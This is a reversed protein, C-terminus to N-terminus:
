ATTAQVASVCKELQKALRAASSLHVSPGTELLFDVELTYPGTEDPTILRIQQPEVVADLCLVGDVIAIRSAPGCKLKAPESGTPRNWVCRRIWIKAPLGYMLGSVSTKAPADIGLSLSQWGAQVAYERESVVQEGDRTWSLGLKGLGPRPEGMMEAWLQFERYLDRMQEIAGNDRSRAAAIAAEYVQRVIEPYSDLEVAARRNHRLGTQVSKMASVWQEETPVWGMREVLSELTRRPNSLFDDYLVVSVPFPSAGTIAGLTYRLWSGIAMTGLPQMVRYGGDFALRSESEMVELPNRVCVVYHPSIGLEAFVENYIPMVLSTLPQKIGWCSKDHFEEQIFEKLLRILEASQPFEKWSSPLSNFSTVHMQFDDLIKLNIATAKRHEFYGRENNGDASYLMEERGFYVGLGALAGSLASTGSRQMGLIVVPTEERRM